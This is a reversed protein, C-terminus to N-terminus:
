IAYIPKINDCSHIIAYRGVDDDEREEIESEWEREKENGLKSRVNFFSRFSFSFFINIKKKRAEILSYSLSHTLTSYASIRNIVYIM